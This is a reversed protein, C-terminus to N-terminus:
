DAVAETSDDVLRVPRVSPQSGSSVRARCRSRVPTEIFRYSVAAIAVSLGSLAVARVIGSGIALPEIVGAMLPFHWLYVGYSVRGVAVLAPTSLMRPALGIPELVGAIILCAALAILSFGWPVVQPAIDPAVAAFVLWSSGTTVMLTRAASGLRNLGGLQRFAALACGGLLADARTDPAFYLRAFSAGAHDLGVRLALSALTGLVAVTLVARVSWRRVCLLGILVLPWILYFQEEIALSWTHGLVGLPLGPYVASAIDTSYTATVLIGEGTGQWAPQNGALAAWAGCVPLLVALAPLLRAARRLYFGGLLLAGRSRFEELLLTTILFGSLVFFVDVGLAGNPLADRDVHFVVVSLVAIGRLGDLAPRYGL